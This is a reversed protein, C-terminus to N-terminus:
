EALAQIEPEGPFLRKVIQLIDGRRPDFDEHGVLEDNVFIELEDCSFCFLVDATTRRREWRVVVGPSFICGKQSDFLYTADDGLIRGLAAAEVDSVSATEGLIAYGSIEGNGADGTAGKHSDISFASITGARRNGAVLDYNGAGGYLAEARESRGAADTGACSTAGVALLACLVFARAVSV